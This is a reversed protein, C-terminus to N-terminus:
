SSKGRLDKDGKEGLLKNPEGMPSKKLKRKERKEEQNVATKTKGDRSDNIKQVEGKIGSGLRKREKLRRPV